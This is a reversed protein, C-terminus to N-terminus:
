NMCAITANVWLFPTIGNWQRSKSREQRTPILWTGLLTDFPVEQATGSILPSANVSNKNLFNSAIIRGHTGLWASFTCTGKRSESAWRIEHSPKSNTMHRESYWIVHDYLGERWFYQAVNCHSIHLYQVLQKDLSYIGRDHHTFGKTYQQIRCALVFSLIKGNANM